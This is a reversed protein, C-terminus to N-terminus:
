QKESDLVPAKILLIPVNSGHFVKEAVSGMAWRSFGSRGHSALIILDAKEVGAFDVIQEAADGMAIVIGAKVGKKGLQDAIRALYRQGQKLIKGTVLPIKLEPDLEFQKGSYPRDTFGIFPQHIENGTVTAAHPYSSVLGAIKETVTILVVEEAGCGKAISEVHPLVCEALKSGDLTVVIKKYM